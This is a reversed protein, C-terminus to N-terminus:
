SVTAIQRMTAALQAVIVKPTAQSPSGVEAQHEADEGPM